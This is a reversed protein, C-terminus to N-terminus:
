LGVISLDLISNRNKGKDDVFSYKVKLTKGIYSRDGKFKIQIQNESLDANTSHDKVILLDTADEDNVTFTWLGEVFPVEDENKMIKVTIKKTGGGVKIEPKSGSVVFEAREYIVADEKTIPTESYYDAYKGKITSPDGEVEYHIYDTEENWLDQKITYVCLGNSDLRDVKTISFVRPVQRKKVDANFVDVKTDIIVRKNYSLRATDETLPLLFKMTDDPTQFVSDRWVGATYSSQTRTVGAIDIKRGNDCFNFTYNCPLIEYSSFQPNYFNALGVILWRRYIGKNDPIDCYSGVPCEADWRDAFAKKYYTLSSFDESPRFQLHYTVTDKAYTQSSNELYKVNIPIKNPNNEPKMDTLRFPDEDHAVDYFYATRTEISRDWTNEMVMDSDAKRAQGITKNGLLKQYTSLTPM